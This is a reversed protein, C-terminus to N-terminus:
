AIGSLQEMPASTLCDNKFGHQTFPIIPDVMLLKVNGSEEIADEIDSMDSVLDVLSGDANRVPYELLYKRDGGCADFMGLLDEDWEDEGNLYVVYGQPCPHDADPFYGGTTITAAIRMLLRSKGISSEGTLLHFRNEQIMSHWLWRKPKIARGETPKFVVRRKPAIKEKLDNLGNVLNLEPPVQM